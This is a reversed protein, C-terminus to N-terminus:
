LQSYFNVTNTYMYSCALQVGELSFTNFDITAVPTKGSLNEAMTFVVSSANVGDHQVGGVIEDYGSFERLAALKSKVNATDGICSITAYGESQKFYNCVTLMLAGIVQKASRDMNHVYNKWAHCKGSAVSRDAVDSYKKAVVDETEISDLVGNLEKVFKSDIEM